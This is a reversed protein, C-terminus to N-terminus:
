VVSDCGRVRRETDFTLQSLPQRRTDFIRCYGDSASTAFNHPNGEITSFSTITGGHGLYRSVMAGREVDMLFCSSSIEFLYRSESCLINGSPHIHWPDLSMKSDFFRVDDDSPSGPSPEIEEDESM